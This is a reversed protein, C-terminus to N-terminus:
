AMIREYDSPLAGHCAFLWLWDMLKRDCLELFHERVFIRAAGIENPSTPWFTDAARATTCLDATLDRCHRPMPLARLAGGVCSIPEGVNGPRDKLVSVFRKTVPIADDVQHEGALLAHACQLDHTVHPETRVLGCPFHAVLNTNGQHFVNILEASNDLYIFSEDATQGFVPMPVFAAAPTSSAADTGAFRWDDASDAALSVNNGAYDCIDLGGRQFGEHAFGNGIFDAQKAGILPSAVIAKVFVERVGGNVMRFALVDDACDVSLGDFAEPADELATDDSTEVFDAAFIHREINGLELEAIVIPLVRVNESRRDFSASNPAGAYVSIASPQLIKIIQRKM